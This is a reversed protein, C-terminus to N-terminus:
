TCRISQRRTRAFAGHAREDLKIRGAAGGKHECRRAMAPQQGIALDTPRNGREIVSHLLGHVRRHAHNRFASTTIIATLRNRYLRQSRCPTFGGIGRSVQQNGGILRDAIELDIAAGALM